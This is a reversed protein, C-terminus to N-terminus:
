SREAGDAHRLSTTKKGPPSGVVSFSRPAGLPASVTVIEGTLRDKVYVAPAQSTPLLNSARSFFSVYRGDASISPRRKLRAEPSNIL